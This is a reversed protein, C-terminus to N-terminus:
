RPSKQHFITAKLKRLADWTGLEECGDDGKIRMIYATPCINSTVMTTVACVFFPLSLFIFHNTEPNDVDYIALFSHSLAPGYKRGM